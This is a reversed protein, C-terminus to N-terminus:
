KAEAGARTLTLPLKIGSQSWTGQLETGQANLTGEFRGGTAPATMAVLHDRETIVVPFQIGGEDESIAIGTATGNPHNTLTMTVHM